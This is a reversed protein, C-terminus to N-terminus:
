NPVARPYPTGIAISVARSYMHARVELHTVIADAPIDYRIVTTATEQPALDGFRASDPNAPLYRAGKAARLHQARVPVAIDGTGVNRATVTVDCVKGNVSTDDPGCRVEHVMFSVAGDRVPEGTQDPGNTIVHREYARWLLVAGSPGLSIVALGALAVLTATAAQLYRRKRTAGV